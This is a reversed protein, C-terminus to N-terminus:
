AAVSRKCGLDQISPVSVPISLTARTLTGPLCTMDLAGGGSGIKQRVLGLGMGKVVSSGGERYLGASDEVAIVLHGEGRHARIRVTCPGLSQSVAHKIANEVLPQLVFSPISDRYLDDPVCIELKLRDAFRAQEIALYSTVHELEDELSTKQWPRDLNRRLWAAFKQILLRARDPDHRVVAATTNLANFLFHPNLRARVLEERAEELMRAQQAGREATWASLLLAGVMETLTVVYSVCPHYDSVFLVLHGSCEEEENGFPIVLISDSGLCRAPLRMQFPQTLDKCPAIDDTCFSNPVEGASALVHLEGTICVGNVGLGQWLLTAVSAARRSDLIPFLGQLRGALDQAKNWAATVDFHAARLRVRFVSVFGAISVVQVLFTFAAAFLLSPQDPGIRDTALLILMYHLSVPLLTALPIVLLNSLCPFSDRYRMCLYCVIGALLGCAAMSFATVIDYLGLGYLCLSSTVAVAGAAIFGHLLSAIVVAAIPLAVWHPGFCAADLWGCLVSLFAAGSVLVTKHPWAPYPTCVSSLLFTAGLVWALLAYGSVQEVLVIVLSSLDPLM